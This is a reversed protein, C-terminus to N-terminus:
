SSNKRLLQQALRTSTLRYKIKNRLSTVITGKLRILINNTAYSQNYVYLSLQQASFALRWTMSHGLALNILISVCPPVARIQKNRIKSKYKRLLNPHACPPNNRHCIQGSPVSAGAFFFFSFLSGSRPRVLFPISSTQKRILCPSISIGFHSHAMLNSNKQSKDKKLRKKKRKKKKKKKVFRNTMDVTPASGRSGISKYAVWPLPM